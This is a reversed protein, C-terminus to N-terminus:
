TALAAAKAATARTTESTVANVANKRPWASSALECWLAVRAPGPTSRATIPLASYRVRHPRNANAAAAIMLFVAAVMVAISPRSNTIGTRTFRSGGLQPLSRARHSGVEAARAMEAVTPGCSGCRNEGHPWTATNATQVATRSTTPPMRNRLRSAQFALILCLGQGHDDACGSHSSRLADPPQGSLSLGSSARDPKREQPVVRQGPYGLRYRRSIRLAGYGDGARDFIRERPRTRQHPDGLHHRRSSSADNPHRPPALVPVDACLHPRCRGLRWGYISPSRPPFRLVTARRNIVVHSPRDAPSHMSPDTDGGPHRSTRPRTDATSSTTATVANASGPMPAIALRCAGSRRIEPQHHCRHGGGRGALVHGPPQHVVAIHDDGAHQGRVSRLGGASVQVPHQSGGPGPPVGELAEVRLPDVGQEGLGAREVREGGARQQEADQVLYEAMVLEAGRDADADPRALLRLDQVPVVGGVRHGLRM